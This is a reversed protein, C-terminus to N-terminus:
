HPLDPHRLRHELGGFAISVTVNNNDAFNRTQAQFVSGVGWAGGALLYTDGVIGARGVRGHM